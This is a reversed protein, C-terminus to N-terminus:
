MSVPALPKTLFNSLHSGPVREGIGNAVPKASERIIDNMLNLIHDIRLTAAQILPAISVKTIRRGLGDYLITALYDEMVLNM